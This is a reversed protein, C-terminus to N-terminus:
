RKFVANGEADTQKFGLDVFVGVVSSLHEGIIFDIRDAIEKFDPSKFIKDEEGEVDIKLINIHDINNKKIFSALTQTQVKEGDDEETLKAAGRTEKINLNGEGNHDSLALKFPKIKTLDFEKINDTLEKFYVSFPEIAYIIKAKDYMYASFEGALAGVDIIVDGNVGRAAKYEKNKFVDAFFREGPIKKYKARLKQINNKPMFSTQTM